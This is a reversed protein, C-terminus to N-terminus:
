RHSVKKLFLLRAASALSLGAGAGVLAVLLPLRPGLALAALAGVVPAWVPTPRAAYADALVIVGQAIATPAALTWLGPAPSAVWGAALYAAYILGGTIVTLQPDATRRIRSQYLRPLLRLVCVGYQAPSRYREQPRGAGRRTGAGAAALGGPTGAGM